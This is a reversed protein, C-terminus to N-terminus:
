LRAIILFILLIRDTRERPHNIVREERQSSAATDRNTWCISSNRMWWNCIEEQRRHTNCCLDHHRTAEDSDGRHGRCQNGGSAEVEVQPRRVEVVEARDAKSSSCDGHTAATWRWTEHRWHTLIIHHRPYSCLGFSSACDSSGFHRWADKYLKKPLLLPRWHAPFVEM